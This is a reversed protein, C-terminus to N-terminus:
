NPLSSGGGPERCVVDLREDGAEPVDGGGEGRGVRFVLGLDVGLDVDGVVLVAPDDDLGPRTCNFRTDSLPSEGGTRPPNGIPGNGAM